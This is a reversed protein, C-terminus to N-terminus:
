PKDTALLEKVAVGDSWTGMARQEPTNGLAFQRDKGYFAASCLGDFLKWLGNYDLADASRSKGDLSPFGHDGTQEIAQSSLRERLRSLLPRNTDQGGPKEGSDYDGNLACPAFHDAVLPPNGHGDSVLTIFNKNAPPIRTTEYFIRKADTDRALTDQDGVVALLLINSPIQSIDELPIRVKEVKSWSKGPQVCMIAKPEPIGATRALAALNAATQGGASHGVCAVRDLDPKVHTGDQLRNVANSVARAANAAIKDPPYRWQDQYRPYIVINGRRVLHDIWGGYSRPNTAGWGHLFVIAPATAPAPDAPEYLWYQDAGSGYVNKVVQAHRYEAGGPGSTPQRPPAAALCVSAICLAVLAPLLKRVRIDSLRRM